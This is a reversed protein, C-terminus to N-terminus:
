ESDGTPRAISRTGADGSEGERFSLVVAAQDFHMGHVVFRAYRENCPSPFPEIDSACWLDHYDAVRRENIKKTM